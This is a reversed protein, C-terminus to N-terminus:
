GESGFRRNRTNFEEIAAWLDQRNFDPWLKDSFYLESYAAQFLLFNSIRQEGGTRILLDIDQMDPLYLHKKFSKVDVKKINSSLLSNVTDVIELQSGYNICMNLKLTKNSRTKVEGVKLTDYVSKWLKPKRGCWRIQVGWEDLTSIRQKIIERSFGMLFRVEEPSRNWNETSFTYLSLESVGAQIAGAVIDMLVLEGIKHGETRKLGKATAWRGNGDM